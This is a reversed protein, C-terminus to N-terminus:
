IDANKKTSCKNQIKILFYFFLFLCNLLFWDYLDKCNSLCSSLGKSFFRLLIECKTVWSQDRGHDERNLSSQLVNFTFDAM